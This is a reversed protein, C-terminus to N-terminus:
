NLTILSHASCAKLNGKRIIDVSIHKRIIYYKLAGSFYHPFTSTCFHSIPISQVGAENLVAGLSAM